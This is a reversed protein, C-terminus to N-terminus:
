KMPSPLYTSIVPFPILIALRLCDATFFPIVGRFVTGTSVQPLVRDILDMTVHEDARSVVPLGAFILVLLTLETVEFAGRIPRNRLYRAVM